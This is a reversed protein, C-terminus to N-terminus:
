PAPLLPQGVGRTRATSPPCGSRTARNGSSLASITLADVDDVDRMQASARAAWARLVAPVCGAPNSRLLIESGMRDVTLYGNTRLAGPPTDMLHLMAKSDDGIVPNTDISM